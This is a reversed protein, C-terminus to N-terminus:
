LTIKVVRESAPVVVKIRQPPRLVRRHHNQVPRMSQVPPPGLAPIVLGSLLASADSREVLVSKLQTLVDTCNKCHDSGVCKKSSEVVM